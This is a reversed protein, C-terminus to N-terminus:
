QRRWEWSNATEGNAGNARTGWRLDVDFFDLGFQEIRDRLEPFVVTVLHDREAQM